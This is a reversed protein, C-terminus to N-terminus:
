LAMGLAQMNAKLTRRALVAVLHRRYDASGRVDSIPRCEGAAEGAARGILEETLRQGELVEEARRARLPTPAVAALAVRARSILGQGDVTLLSAVGAVAIDMEQRPTFRLYSAASGQPPPSVVVEVLMEGTGLVTEGPGICVEEVAVERRGSPGALVARAGLCMLGPVTDASPVANCLNGGLTGRNRIQVSGVLGCSAAIVPYLRLVDPHSAIDSLPVAAGIHLGDGAYELRRLEPVGKVDVVLPPQIRRYRMQPLLDTGGALPRAAPGAGALLSVAENLTRPAAYEFAKM